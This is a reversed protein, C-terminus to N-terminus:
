QLILFLQLVLNKPYKWFVHAIMQWHKKLKYSQAKLLCSLKMIDINLHDKKDLFWPFPTSPPSHQITSNLEIHWECIISITFNKTPLFHRIKRWTLFIIVYSFDFHFNNGSLNKGILYTARTFQNNVKVKTESQLATPLDWLKSPCFGYLVNNYIQHLLFQLTGPAEWNKAM